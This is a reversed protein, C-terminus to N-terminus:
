LKRLEAQLAPRRSYTVKLRTLYSQWEAQRGAHLYAKKAKELWRAAAPYYKSQTKEILGEAQQISVQIVWDPRHHLVADAVKEILPYGRYSAQDAVQIAADWGGELLYVAALMGSNLSGQLTTMMKPKLDNWGPGALRMVTQYLEITPMSTFAALYAQIASETRGQAEELPGLWTGLVHKHGALSLGREGIAIADPVYGLEHLKQAVSLADNVDTLRNMTTLIAEDKRGLELLKLAYRRHEGTRQCLTLYEDIRGHYELVNLKAQILDVAAYEEKAEDDVEEAKEELREDEWGQELAALAVELGDIGYDSVEGVLPELEQKLKQLEAESLDSSLIAEALPQGLGGLFHGLEGDSNDFQEYSGAVEQLLTMLIILAGKADGAALFAGASEVLEVLQEVMGSVMWYADSMRYGDLSHLINQIQRRHTQASVQARRKGKSQAGGVQAADRAIPLATEIWDYLGPDREVMRAILGVLADSEMGSLLESISKREIFEEPKHLYTLLLAVIHKCYGDMEYPCTCSVSRVGGDDLEVQLRYAPASSGECESALQNGRITTNYVAGSRYYQQAREFSQSTCLARIIEETLKTVIGHEIM